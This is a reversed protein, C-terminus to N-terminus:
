CATSSGRRRGCSAWRRHVRRCPVSRGTVARPVWFERRGLLMQGCIAVIIVTMVTPLFIIGSLPSVVIIAPLLLLAGFSRQGIQNLIAQGSVTEANACAEEICDLLGGLNCPAAAARHPAAADHGPLRPRDPRPQPWAPGPVPRRRGRGGGRAADM